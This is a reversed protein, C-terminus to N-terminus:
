AQHTGGPYGGPPDQERQERKRQRITYDGVWIGRLTKTSFYLAFFFILSLIQDVVFLLWPMDGFRSIAHYEFSLLAILSAIVDIIMVWRQMPNTLGAVITVVVVVMLSLFAPIPLYANFFPIGILMILGGLLFLQRVKDGYYHSFSLPSAIKRSVPEYNPDPYEM